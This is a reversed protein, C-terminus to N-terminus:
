FSIELSGFCRGRLKLLSIANYESGSGEAGTFISM